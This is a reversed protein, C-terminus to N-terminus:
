SHAVCCAARHVICSARVWALVLPFQTRAAVPENSGREFTWSMREIVMPAHNLFRVVPYGTQTDFREVVGRSGNCLGIEPPFNKLLMVQASDALLCM